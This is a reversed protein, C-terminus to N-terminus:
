DMFTKMGFYIIGVVILMAILYPVANDPTLPPLGGGGGTSIM